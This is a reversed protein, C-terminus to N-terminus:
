CISFRFCREIDGSTIKTDSINPVDTLTNTIKNTEGSLANVIKDTNENQNNIIATGQNSINNNINDLAPLYDINGGSGNDGSPTVPTDGSSDNDGSPVPINASACEIINNSSLFRWQFNNQNDVTNLYCDIENIKGIEGFGVMADYIFSYDDDNLSSHFSNYSISSGTGTLSLTSSLSGYNTYNLSIYEITGIFGLSNEDRYGYWCGPALNELRIFAFDDNYSNNNFLIFIYGQQGLVFVMNSLKANLMNESMSSKITDLCTSFNTNIFFNHYYTNSYNTDFYTFVAQLHESTMDKVDCFDLDPYEVAYCTTGFLMYVMCISFIVFGTILRKGHYKKKNNEM